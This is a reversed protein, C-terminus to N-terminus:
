TGRRSSGFFSALPLIVVLIMIAAISSDQVVTALARHVMLGLLGIVGLATLFCFSKFAAPPRSARKDPMMITEPAAARTSTYLRRHTVRANGTVPHLTTLTPSFTQTTLGPLKTARWKECGEM